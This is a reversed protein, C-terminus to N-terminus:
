IILCVKTNWPKETQKVFVRSYFFDSQTIIYQKPIRAYYVAKHLDSIFTLRVINHTSEYLTQGNAQMATGEFKIYRASKEQHKVKTVIGADLEVSHQM